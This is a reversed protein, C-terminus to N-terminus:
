EVQLRSEMLVVVYPDWTSLVYYLDLESGRLKMWREVIYPAYTGGRVAGPNAHGKGIVPGAFGDDALIFVMNPKKATTVGGSPKAAPVGLMWGGFLILGFVSVFAFIKALRNM